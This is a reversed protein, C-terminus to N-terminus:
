IHTFTNEINLIVVAFNDKLYLNSKLVLSTLVGAIACHTLFGVAPLERQPETSTFGGLIWSSPTQDGAESMANLIQHQWLSHHLNCVYSLDPMTTATAYAPLQLDLKVGLM